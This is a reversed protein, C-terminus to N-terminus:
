RYFDDVKEKKPFSEGRMISEFDRRESTSRSYFGDYVKSINESKSTLWMFTANFDGTGNLFPTAGIIRFCKYLDSITLDASKLVSKLKRKRQPTWRSIPPLHPCFEAWKSAIEDWDFQEADRPKDDIPTKAGGPKYHEKFIYPKLLKEGLENVNLDIANKDYLSKLTKKVTGVDMGSLTALAQPGIAVGFSNDCVSDLAMLLWKENVDLDSNSFLEIPICIYKCLQKM